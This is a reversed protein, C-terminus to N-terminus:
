KWIFPPYADLDGRLRRAMLQAQLHPFLGLPANEGLYPHRLEVRKREQYATLVTKRAEERLYVAGTEQREFDAPGIQKRNLLSLAVRDALAARFEEALDLALSPRGPRDAHLFGMQPDLGNAELASRCDHSVLVYLFSLLANPADLPPRRSRGKFCLDPESRRVLHAFLGFYVAAAEGEHGRAVDVSQAAAAERACALLRVDAEEFMAQEAASM